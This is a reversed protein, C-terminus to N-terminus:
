ATNKPILKRRNKLSKAVNKQSTDVAEVMEEAHLHTYIKTTQADVHGVISELMPLDMGGIIALTIFTHRCTYPTADTIQLEEMARKFDRNTWPVRSKNGPYSDILKQKGAKRSAELLEQYYARGDEGIPIVRDKGKKTKSGFIMHDPYCRDLPVEFLENPRCGCSIMIGMLKAAPLDSSRIKELEEDTFRRSEKKQQATVVLNLAPNSQLINEQMAWKCLQTFLTRLKKVTSEAFDEEEMKKIALAYDNHTIDRIKKNHLQTCHKFADQYDQLLSPSITPKKTVMWADYVQQFTMNYRDNISQDTVRELAKQAEARSRFTGLVMDGKRAMWPKTRNGSLKSINGTGNERKRYKRDEKTLKKGCNPCFNYSETLACKCKPCTQSVINM